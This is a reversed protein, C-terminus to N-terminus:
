SYSEYAKKFVDLLTSKDVVKFSTWTPKLKEIVNNFYVSDYSNNSVINDVNLSGTRVRILNKCEIDQNYETFPKNNGSQADGNRNTWSQATLQYRGAASSNKTSATTGFWDGLGHGYKTNSDWGKILRFELAVNYGNESVGSTGEAYAITDLMAKEVRTLPTKIKGIGSLKIDKNPSLSKNPKTLKNVDSGNTPITTEINGDKINNTIRDPLYFEIHIHDDHGVWQNVFGPFAQNMEVGNFWLVKVFNNGNKMKYKPSNGLDKIINILKKTGSVSYNNTRLKSLNNPSDASPKEAVQRFDGSVGLRHTKSVLGTADGKFNSFGNYYLADNYFVTQGPTTNHQRVATEWLLGLDVMFDKVEQVAFNQPNPNKQSILGPSKLPVQVIVEEKDGVNTSAVGRNNVGLSGLSKSDTLVGELDSFFRNFLTEDDVMKTMTNKIRYGKIKTIMGGPTITHNVRSITYLGYFMPINELMFYMFPQIMANGMMEIDVSYSRSQYIDFLNQGIGEGKTLGDTINLSENSATFESQNLDISKFIAQNQDGFRVKFIPIREDETTEKNMEAAQCTGDENLSVGDNVFNGGTDLQNSLEGSYMCLFQPKNTSNIENWPIPKFISKISEGKSLDIYNPLPFFNFNNDGLVRSIHSYLPANYNAMLDQVLAPTSIRFSQSVDKYSRDIFRFQDILKDQKATSGSIWKDYISKIDKYVKLRIDDGNLSQFLELKTDDIAIKENEINLKNVTKLEELVIKLYNDFNKKNSSIYLSPTAPEYYKDTMDGLDENWIQTSGNVLYISTRLFKTLLVSGDSDPKLELNFDTIGKTLNDDYYNGFLKTTLM